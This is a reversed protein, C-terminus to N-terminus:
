TYDTIRMLNTTIYHAEFPVRTLQPKHKDYYNLLPRGTALITNITIPNTKYPFNYMSKSM